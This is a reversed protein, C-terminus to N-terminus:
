KPVVSVFRWLKEEAYGVAPKEQQLVKQDQEVQM